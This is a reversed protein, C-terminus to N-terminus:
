DVMTLLIYENPETMSQDQEPELRMKPYYELLSLQLAILETTKLNHM